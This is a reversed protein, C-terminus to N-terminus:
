YNQGVTSVLLGFVPLNQRQQSWSDSTCFKEKTFELGIDWEYNM